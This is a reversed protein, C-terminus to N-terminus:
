RSLRRLFISPGASLVRPPWSPPLVVFGLDWGSGCPLPIITVSERGGLSPSGAQVARAQAKHAFWGPERASDYLEREGEWPPVARLPPERRPSKEPSAPARFAEILQPMIATYTFRSLVVRRLKTLVEDRYAAEALFREALHEFEAPNRFVVQELGPFDAATGGLTEGAARRQVYTELPLGAFDAPCYRTLINEPKALPTKANEHIHKPHHGSPSKKQTTRYRRRVPKPGHDDTVSLTVPTKSAPPTVRYVRSERGRCLSCTTRAPLESDDGRDGKPTHAREEALVGKASGSGADPMGPFLGARCAIEM